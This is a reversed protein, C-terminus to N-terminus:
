LQAHNLCMVEGRREGTGMVLRTTERFFPRQWGLLAKFNPNASKVKLYVILLKKADTHGM